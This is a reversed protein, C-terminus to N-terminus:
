NPSDTFSSVFVMRSFYPCVVWAIFFVGGLCTFQFYVMLSSGNGWLEPPSWLHGNYFYTYAVSVSYEMVWLSLKNTSGVALEIPVGVLLYAVMNPLCHWWFGGGNFWTALLAHGSTLSRCVLYLFGVFVM